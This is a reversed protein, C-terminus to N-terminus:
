INLLVVAALGIGIGSLRRRSFFEGFILYAALSSIVVVGVSYTPFVVSSEWAQFSLVRTLTFLATYNLCGLALGALVSRVSDFLGQRLHWLIVISTLFAFFFASMVYTHHESASLYFHQAIKLVCFHLGFGFFTLAPIGLDIARSRSTLAGKQPTSALYLALLSALLGIAKAPDISDGFVIFGMVVPLAVALRSSLAAVSVGVKQATYALLYFNGALLGGQLMALFIWPEAVIRGPGPTHTMWLGLLVCTLYNAPVAWVLKMRWLTMARFGLTICASCLISTLLYGMCRISIM